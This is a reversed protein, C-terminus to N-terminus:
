NSVLSPMSKKLLARRAKGGIEIRTTGLSLRVCALRLILISLSGVLSLRLSLLMLRMVAIAALDIRSESLVM